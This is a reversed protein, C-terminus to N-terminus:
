QGATSSPENALLPQEEGGSAVATVMLNRTQWHFLLWLVTVVAGVVGMSLTTQQVTLAIQDLAFGAWYISISQTLTLAAFEFAFVRGRVRDPVAMQLMAASFVWLAGTGLTRVLTAVSFWALTPALALGTIGATMLCLGIIIAWRMQRPADGLFRRLLLPGIGTGIGSIMYILGLTAEGGGEMPFVRHAFTVELVNIAGWALSGGAKILALGLIAREGRLYRLGDLFNFWGGPRSPQTLLPTALEDPKSVIAIRALLLTSGAYALANIVFAAQIGLVATAVGGLLAGIALMTSWTLSDLANATVLQRRVVINPIVATRAPVFLAALAFQIVLLLYLLWLDAAQRVLLFGLVVAAQILNSYIMIKRRDYRDALVGALPAFLFLPLFRALFLYSVATGSGSLMEILSATAILNFWDGLQTVVYGLWLNRYNRNNRLLTWYVAMCNVLLFRWVSVTPVVFTYL